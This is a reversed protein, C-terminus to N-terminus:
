TTPNRKEYEKAVWDLFDKAHEDSMWGCEQSEDVDYLMNESAYKYWAAWQPTHTISIWWSNHTGDSCNYVSADKAWAHEKECECVKEIPLKM